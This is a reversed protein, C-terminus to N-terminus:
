QGSTAAMCAEVRNVSYATTNPDPQITRLQKVLTTIRTDTAFPSAEVCAGFGGEFGYGYVILGDIVGNAVGMGIVQKVTRFAYDDVAPGIGNINIEVARMATAANAGAAMLMGAALWVAIGRM